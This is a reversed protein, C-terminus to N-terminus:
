FCLKDKLWKCSQEILEEMSYICSICYISEKEMIMKHDDFPQLRSLWLGYLIPKGYVNNIFKTSNIFSNVAKTSRRRTKVWKTQIVIIGHDLEILFDIGTTQWGFRRRIEDECFIKNFGLNKLHQYVKSELEYGRNLPDIIM